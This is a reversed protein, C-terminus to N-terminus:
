IRFESEDIPSNIKKNLLKILSYDGSADVIKITSVTYENNNFTLEVEKIYKAMDKGKPILVVINKSKSKNYTINFTDEDFLNGTYSGVMLKQIHQFRKNKTLDITSTKGKDNQLVLNNKNFLMVQKKPTKYQWLIKDDKYRFIGSSQVANKLVSVYKQEEFDASISKIKQSQNKVQQRFDSIESSSMKTQALCNGGLLIFLFIFLGSKIM